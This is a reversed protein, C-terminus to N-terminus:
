EMRFTDFFRFARPSNMFKNGGFAKLVIVYEETLLVRMWSMSNDWYEQGLGQIAEGGNPLEIKEYPSEEPSPLYEAAADEWSDIDLRDYVEISYSNGQGFERYISSVHQEDYLGLEQPKGPFSITLGLSDVSYEYTRMAKVAKEALTRHEAYTAEIKRVTYGKQGLLSIIGQDGALHGAGVACFVSKESLVQELSDVMSINRDTILSQYYRPVISLSTKVFDNLGYIDGELYLGIMEEKTSLIAGLNGEEFDFSSYDSIDPVVNMQFEITELPYFEKGANFCYQQFYADLFQPMGDEDGYASKSARANSTYPKGDSDFKLKVNGKRADFTEFISFIDTELSIVEAQDMAYYVSDPLQFLRKDNSHMSGFLYSKKGNKAKVEWLLAYHEQQGFSFGSSLLVFLLILISKM